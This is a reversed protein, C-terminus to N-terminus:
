NYGPVMMTLLFKRGRDPARQRLTRGRQWVEPGGCTSLGGCNLSPHVKEREPDMGPSPGQPYPDQRTDALTKRSRLRIWYRWKQCPFGSEDGLDQGSLGVATQINRWSLLRFVGTSYSLCEFMWLFFRLALGSTVDGGARLCLFAGEGPGENAISQHPSMVCRRTPLTTRMTLGGVAFVAGRSRWPLLWAVDRHTSPFPTGAPRCVSPADSAGCRSPKCFSQRRPTAPDEAGPQLDHRRKLVWRM